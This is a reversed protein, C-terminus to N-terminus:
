SQQAAIAHNSTWHTWFDALIDGLSANAQLLDRRIDTIDVRESILRHLPRSLTQDGMVIAGVITRDAVLIRLRNIDFKNQAAIADPLQRWTESDGRAISVMDEDRGSGVTGIITTTLGALRTVNFPVFKYYPTPIGAMNMGAATGQDRAPGWLSDLVSKGSFPDFVQAIDGAAFIDPANTQMYENVLVGRDVQIGSAEALEKRPRIGIAVGVIDCRMEKGDKTRVGIVHGKKGLIEALDTHYHITVGDEELRHEIIRSETEDLVNSWYRDGRLFYHVKVGRKILGEVIELATIGGGVVVATRAKRAAQIIRRADDLNDLKLVGELDIGPVKTMAAEAGIAILLRDYSLTQSDQLRIYHAESHIREVRAHLFRINLKRFHEEPLPRIHQESLEGTLYYALAPRSYFGNAEEGIMIIEAGRDQSRITEAAAVSAVGSGILVYRSVDTEGWGQKKTKL